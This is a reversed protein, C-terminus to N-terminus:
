GYFDTCKQSVLVNTFSKTLCFFFVKTHSSTYLFLLIGEQDQAQIIHIIALTALLVLLLWFSSEM